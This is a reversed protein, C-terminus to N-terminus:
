EDKINAQKFITGYKKMEARVLNRFEDSTGGVTELGAVHLRDKVEPEAIVRALEQNLRQVIPAPTNAPAFIGLYSVSEYGPLTASVTPLGPMLPSPQASSVALARLRGTKVHQEVAGPVGFILHVQGTILDSYAAPSGKYNVRVMDLKAMSKFLEAAIHVSNGVGTTGYNLQGPKARALAILDRVNRVPLSPHVVLVNPARTVLIV